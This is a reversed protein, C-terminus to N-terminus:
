LLGAALWTHVARYPGTVLHGVRTGSRAGNDTSTPHGAARRSARVRRVRRALAADAMMQNAHDRALQDTVYANM